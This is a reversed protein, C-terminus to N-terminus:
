WGEVMEDVLDDTYKSIEEAWEKFCDECYWGDVEYAKDSSIPEGCKACRPLKAEIEATERDYKIYQDYNDPTYSM